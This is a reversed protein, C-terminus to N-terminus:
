RGTPEAPGACPEPVATSTTGKAVPPECPPPPPTPPAQTGCLDARGMGHASPRVRSRRSRTPRRRPRLDGPEAGPVHRKKSGPSGSSSRLASSEPRSRSTGRVCVFHGVDAFDAVGRTRPPSGCGAPTSRKACCSRCGPSSSDARGRRQAPRGEGRRRGVRDRRLRTRGHGRCPDRRPIRHGAGVVEAPRRQSRFDDRFPVVDPTAASRAGTRRPQGAPLMLRTSAANSM